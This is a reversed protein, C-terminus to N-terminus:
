RGGSAGGGCVLVVVGLERTWVGGCLGVGCVWDMRRGHQHLFPPPSMLRSISNLSPVSSPVPDVGFRPRPGPLPTPLWPDRRGLLTRAVPKYVFHRLERGGTDGGARV